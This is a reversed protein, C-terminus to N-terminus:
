INTPWHLGYFFFSFQFHKFRVKEVFCHTEDQQIDNRTFHRRNFRLPTKQKQNKPNEGQKVNKRAWLGKTKVPLCQNYTIYSVPCMHAALFTPGEPAQSSQLSFDLSGWMSINTDAVAPSSQVIRYTWIKNVQLVSSVMIIPNDM